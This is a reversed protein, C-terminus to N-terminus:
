YVEVYIQKWANGPYPLSSKSLQASAILHKIGFTVFMMDWIEKSSSIMHDKRIENPHSFSLWIHPINPINSM